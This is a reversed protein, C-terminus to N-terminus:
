PTVFALLPTGRAPLSPLLGYRRAVNGVGKGPLTGRSGIGVFSGIGEYGGPFVVAGMV